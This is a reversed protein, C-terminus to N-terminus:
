LEPPYQSLVKEILRKFTEEKQDPTQTPNFSFDSLAQWFLQKKAHDVFDITMKCNTHSQGVPIGISVGGGVHGGGGGLGVGVSSGQVDQYTQSKIDIYFDPTESVSYGLTQMKSDIADLLRNTDLESFGTQMDAFYQYTKYNEFNITKDYDYNVHISACAVLLFALFIIKPFRM